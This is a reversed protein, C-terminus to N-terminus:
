REQTLLLGVTDAAAATAYWRQTVVSGFMERTLLMPAGGGFIHLGSGSTLGADTSITLLVGPTAPPTILVAVRHADEKMLTTVTPSIEVSVVDVTSYRSM